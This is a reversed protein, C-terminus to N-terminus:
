RGRAKGRKRGGERKGERKVERECGKGRVEEQYERRAWTVIVIVM